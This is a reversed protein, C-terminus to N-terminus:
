QGQAQTPVAAATVKKKKAKPPEAAAKSEPEGCHRQEALVALYQQRSQLAAAEKGAAGQFDMGFWLPWIFLGAVGAGVNQAVKWGQESALDSLRQNNATVEALIAPCDMYRCSAAPPAPAHLHPYIGPVPGAQAHLNKTSRSVGSMRNLQEDTGRVGLLCLHIYSVPNVEALGLAARERHKQAAALM